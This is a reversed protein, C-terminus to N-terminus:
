PATGLVFTLYEEFTIFGQKHTDITRFTREDVFELPSIKGDGNFEFLKFREASLFTEDRTVFGDRNADILSLLKISNLRFEFQVLKGDGNQDVSQFRRKAEAVRDTQKPEAVSAAAESASEPQPQGEALQGSGAREAMQRVEEAEARLQALETGALEIEREIEGVRAERERLKSEVTALEAKGAEIENKVAALEQHAAQRMGELADVQDEAAGVQQGIEDLRGASELYKEVDKRASGLDEALKAREVEGAELKGDLDGSKNFFVVAVAWGAVAVVALISPIIKPM